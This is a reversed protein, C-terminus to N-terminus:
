LNNSVQECQADIDAIAIDFVSPNLVNSHDFECLLWFPDFYRLLLLQTHFVRLM